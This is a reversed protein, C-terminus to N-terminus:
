NHINLVWHAMLLDRPSQTVLTIRGPLQAKTLTLREAEQGGTHHTSYGPKLLAERCESIVGSQKKM